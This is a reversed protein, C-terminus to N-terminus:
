EGSTQWRWVLWGILAFVAFGVMMSGVALILGQLPNGSTGTDVVQQLLSETSTYIDSFGMVVAPIRTVTPTPTITPPVTVTPTITETTTATPTETAQGYAQQAPLSCIALVCIAVATILWQRM